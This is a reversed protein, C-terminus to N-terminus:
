GVELRNSGSTTSGASARPHWPATGKEADQVFSPWKGLLHAPFHNRVRHVRHAEQGREAHEDSRGARARTVSAPERATVVAARSGYSCFLRRRGGRSEDHAAGVDM